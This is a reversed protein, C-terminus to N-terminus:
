ERWADAQCYDTPAHHDYLDVVTYSLHLDGHHVTGVGEIEYGSVKQYPITIRDGEVYALVSIDAAYFNNMWIEDHGSAKSIRIDYYLLDDYTESYEEVEYHGVLVDRQDYRPEVVYVDCASAAVAVLIIPLLKKM